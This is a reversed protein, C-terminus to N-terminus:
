VLAARAEKSLHTGIKVTEGSDCLRLEEVDEMPKGQCLKSEDQVEMAVALTEKMLPEKLTANYCFRAVEQSGKVVKVRSETPFKMALHPTSVVARLANLAPRGIIAHYASPKNVIIFDIMVTSQVPEFGATVPLSITGVPHVKEGNFGVLPTTMPLIRGKDIAMREFAGMFLIDASSGTDILVKHVNYNSILLTVVLADDHPLVIGQLDEDTFVIPPTERKQLKSPRAVSLV